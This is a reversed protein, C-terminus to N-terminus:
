RNWCAAAPGHEAVGNVVSLVIQVCATDAAQAGDPRASAIATYRDPAADALRIDYLGADSLAQPAGLLARTESAYAGHAAHHREQAWQVRTLAAVADARRSKQAQGIAGPVSVGILIAAVSLVVAVEVMTYGRRVPGPAAALDIVARHAPARAIPHPRM